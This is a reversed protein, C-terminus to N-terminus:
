LDDLDDPPLGPQDWDPYDEPNSLGVLRILVRPLRKGCTCEAPPPAERYGDIVCYPVQNSMCGSCYEPKLSELAVELRRLRSRLNM